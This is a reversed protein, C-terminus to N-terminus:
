LWKSNCTMTHLNYDSEYAGIDYASGKPRTTGAYDDTVSAITLGANIAPSGSQLHFDSASVTNNATASVFSKKFNIVVGGNASLNL